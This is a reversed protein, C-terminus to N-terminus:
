KPTDESSKYALRVLDRLARLDGAFVADLQKQTLRIGKPPLPVFSERLSPHLREMVERPTSTDNGEAAYLDDHQSKQQDNDRNSM